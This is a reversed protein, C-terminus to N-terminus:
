FPTDEDDDEDEDRKSRRRSTSSSKAKKVSEMYTGVRISLGYDESNESKTKVACSVPIKAAGIKLIPFGNREDEEGVAMRKRVDDLSVGMVELLPGYRFACKPTLPINDFTGWGDFEEKKGSNGDAEFLVKLMKNGASSQTAWMKKIIGNLVTNPPPDEGAYQGNDDWEEPLENFEDPDNWKMRPM